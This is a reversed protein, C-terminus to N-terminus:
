FICIEDIPLIKRYHRILERNIIMRSQIYQVFLPLNHPNIWLVIALEEDRKKIKDMITANILNFLYLFQVYHHIHDIDSFIEHPSYVLTRRIYIKMKEFQNLYPFDLMIQTEDNNELFIMQLFQLINKQAILSIQHDKFIHALLITIEKSNLINQISLQTNLSISKDIIM